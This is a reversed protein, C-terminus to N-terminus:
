KAELAAILRKDFDASGPNGEWVLRGNRGIIFAHPFEVVL